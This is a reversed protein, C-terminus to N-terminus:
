KHVSSHQMLWDIDGIGPQAPAAAGYPGLFNILNSDRWKHIESHGDAFSLGGAGNHYTAPKDVWSQSANDSCFWGDNISWPNEDLVIFCNAAGMPILDAQKRFIRYNANLPATSAMISDVIPALYGNMSMSRVTPKDTAGPPVSLGFFATRRDAPCKFLQINPAYTYM